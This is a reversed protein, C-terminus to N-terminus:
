LGSNDYCVARTHSMAELLKIRTGGGIFIPVIVVAARAYVPQLNEVYGVIEVGPIDALAAVATQAGIGVVKLVVPQEISSKVLPWVTHVFWRLGVINPTYDLTGVFLVEILDHEAQPQQDMFTVSNPLVYPRVRSRNYVFDSDHRSCVTVATWSVCLKAELASFWRIFRWYLFRYFLTKAEESKTRSLAVSELDDFDVVCSLPRGPAGAFVSDIWVASAVRFAFLLDYGEGIELRHSESDASLAHQDSPHSLRLGYWLRAIRNSAANYRDASVEARTAKERVILKELRLATLDGGAAAFEDFARKPVVM